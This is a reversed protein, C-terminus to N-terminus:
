HPVPRSTSRMAQGEIICRIGLSKEDGVNSGAMAEYGIYYDNDCYLMCAITAATSGRWVAGRYHACVAGRCHALSWCNGKSM